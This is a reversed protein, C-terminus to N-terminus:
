IKYPKHCAGCAGGVSGMAAGLTAPDTVSESAASAAAELAEAKSVFDDWNEWITDSAESEADQSPAEFLAPVTTATEAITALAAQAADVSFDTEGKAMQTLTKMQAGITGMADQRAKVDASEDAFAAGAFPLASLAAVTLLKTTLKM